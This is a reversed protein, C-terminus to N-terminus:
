FRLSAGLLAGQSGRPVVGVSWAQAPTPRRPAATQSWEYGLVSGVIPFVFLAFAGLAEADSSASLALVPVSLLSGTLGGLYTYGLSGRGGALTGGAYVGVPMAFAATAAMVWEPEGGECGRESPLVCSLGLGLGLGAGAGVVAGLLEAVVHTETRPVPAVAASEEADPPLPPASRLAPQPRAWPSTPPPPPLEQGLSSAGWFVVATCFTAAFRRPAAFM